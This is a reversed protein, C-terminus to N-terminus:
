SLNMTRKLLKWVYGDTLEKGQWQMFAIRKLWDERDFEKLSEINEISNAVPTTIASTDLVITPIGYIVAEVSSTSNYTVVCHSLDLDDYINNNVSFSVRKDELFFTRLYKTVGSDRPHHRVIINRDSISKLKEITDKCYEKYSINNYTLRNLASDGDLQLCFLINDGRSKWDHVVLNYKKKLENWRDYGSDYPHLGDDYFFSNWAFRVWRNEFETRKNTNSLSIQRLIPLERILIPIKKKHSISEVAEYINNVGRSKKKIGNQVFFDPTTIIEDFPFTVMTDENTSEIMRSLNKVKGAKCEQVAYGIM